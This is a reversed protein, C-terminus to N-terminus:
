KKYHKKTRRNKSTRKVLKIRTKRKKHTKMKKTFRRKKSKSGGFEPIQSETNNFMYDYKNIEENIENLIDEKNYEYCEDKPIANILYNKLNEKRQSATMNKWLNETMVKPEPIKRKRKEGGGSSSLNRIKEPPQQWTESWDQLLKPLNIQTKDAKGICILTQIEPTPVYDEITRVLLAAGLLSTYFREKIGKTCSTTDYTPNNPHASYAKTTEDIFVKIYAEIFRPDQRFAFNKAKNILNAINPEVGCNTIKTFVNGLKNIEKEKYEMIENADNTHSPIFQDNRNIFNTFDSKIQELDVSSLVPESNAGILNKFKEDTEVNKALNHIEFAPAQIPAQMQEQFLDDNINWRNEDFRNRLIRLRNTINEPGHIHRIDTDRDMFIGTIRTHNDIFAVTLDAGELHAERLNAGELHAGILFAGELHAGQLHARELHAGSLEAEELFAFRLDAEELHAGDLNAGRLDATALVAGRLDADSLQYVGEIQPARELEDLTRIIIPSQPPQHEM